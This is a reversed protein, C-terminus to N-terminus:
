VPAALCTCVYCPLIHPNLGLALFNLMELL